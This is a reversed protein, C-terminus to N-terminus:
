KIQKKIEEVARALQLDNELDINPTNKTSALTRKVYMSVIRQNLKIGNDALTKMLEPVKEELAKIQEEPSQDQNKSLYDYVFKNAYEGEYFKTLMKINEGDKDDEILIPQDVEIDVSVGGQTVKLKGEEKKITYVSQEDNIQWRIGKGRIRDKIKVTASQSLTIGNKIFEQRLNDSITGADMDKQQEQEIEFLKREHIWTGNPTKYISVTISVARQEDLPFRQQVVGKGFTKDGILLGRKYDKIAGAVIESGSASNDNVLLVLPIDASYLMNRKARYESDFRDLRGDTSVILGEPIFANSVDVASTLMGGPNNRLDLIVGKIGKDKLEDLSKKMETYTEATFDSIAVYGIQGEILTSKVSPYNIIERTVVVDFSTDVGSRFINLTVKTGVEGRIMGVVDDMSQNEISKGDVMLIKDGAHLGAKMAPTGDMAQVVNVFGDPSPLIRIGLGGFKAFFLNEQERKRSTEAQYFSYRDGLGQLMGKIAESMVEDLQEKTLNQYYNSLVYSLATSFLEIQKYVDDRDYPKATTQPANSTDPSPTQAIVIPYASIVFFISVYIIIK